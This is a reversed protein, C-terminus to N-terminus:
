VKFSNIFEEVKTKISDRVKAIKILKEEETGTFSSPDEFSWHISKLASPFIPCREGSTEDCVTIVYDFQKENKYFEFVDKTKNKSIDIGIEAMSKIVLPNLKGPELGASEAIFKDGYFTNVFAEAMQSRASNHICVFLVKTKIM